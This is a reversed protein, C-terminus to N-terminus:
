DLDADDFILKEVINKSAILSLGPFEERLTKISQIKNRLHHSYFNERGWAEAEAELSLPQATKDSFATNVEQAIKLACELSIGPIKKDLVMLIEVTRNKM